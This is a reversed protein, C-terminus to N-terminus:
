IDRRDRAAAKVEWRRAKRRRGRDMRRAGEEEEEEEKEKEKEEEEPRAEKKGRAEKKEVLADPRLSSSSSSLSSAPVFGAARRRRRGGGRELGGGGVRRADRRCGCDHGSSKEAGLVQAVCQEGELADRPGAARDRANRDRDQEANAEAIREAHGVRQQRPSLNAVVLM